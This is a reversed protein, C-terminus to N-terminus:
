ESLKLGRVNRSLKNKDKRTTKKKIKEEHTKQGWQIM